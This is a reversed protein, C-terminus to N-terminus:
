IKKRLRLYKVRVCRWHKYTPFGRQQYEPKAFEQRVQEWFKTKERAPVGGLREVLALLAADFETLRHGKRLNLHERIATYYTKWESWSLDAAFITMQARKHTIWGDVGPFLRGQSTLILEVPPRNPSRDCLLYALVDEERFGTAYAMEQVSENLKPFPGELVARAQAAASSATTSTELAWTLVDRTADLLIEFDSVDEEQGFSRSVL